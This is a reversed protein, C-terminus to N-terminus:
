SQWDNFEGDISCPTNNNLNEFEDTRSLLAVRKLRKNKVKFETNYLLCSFYLFFGYYLSVVAQFVPIIAM